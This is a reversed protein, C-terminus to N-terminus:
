APVAPEKVPAPPEVPAPAPERRFPDEVPEVIITEKEKGIDVDKAVEM